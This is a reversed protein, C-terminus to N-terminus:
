SKGGALSLSQGNLGSVPIPTSPPEACAAIVLAAVLSLSIAHRHMGYELFPTAHPHPTAHCASPGSHYAKACTHDLARHSQLTDCSRLLTTTNEGLCRLSCCHSVPM